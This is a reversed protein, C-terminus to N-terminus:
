HPLRVKAQADAVTKRFSPAGFERFDQVLKQYRKDALVTSSLKLLDPTPKHRDLHIVFQRGATTALYHPDTFTITRSGSEHAVTQAIYLTYHASTDGRPPRNTIKWIGDQILKEFFFPVTYTQVRPSSVTVSKGSTASIRYVATSTGDRDEMRYEEREIPGRDYTITLGMRDDSKAARVKQSQAFRTTEPGWFIFLGSVLAAISLVTIFLPVTSPKM